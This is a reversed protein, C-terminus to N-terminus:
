VDRLSIIHSPDIWKVCFGADSLTKVIDRPGDKLGRQNMEFFHVEIFLKRLFQDRLLMKMGQLVELEFGEVDIKIASPIPISHNAILEDGTLIEIKISGPTSEAVLGNTPDNPIGSDRFSFSGSKNSLGINKCAVNKHSKCNNFLTNYTNVTPEYAIVFGTPGVADAFKTTFFGINAGIDWVIESSKIHRMMEKDFESEYSLRFLRRFFRVAPRLLGFRQGFRRALM